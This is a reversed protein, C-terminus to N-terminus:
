LIWNKRKNIHMRWVGRYNEMENIYMKGYVVVVLWVVM